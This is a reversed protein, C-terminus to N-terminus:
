ATRPNRLLPLLYGMAWAVMVGGFAVLAILPGGDEPRTLRPVLIGALGAALLAGGVGLAVWVAWPAPLWIHNSCAGCSWRHTALSGRVRRRTIKM